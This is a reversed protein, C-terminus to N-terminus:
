KLSKTKDDTLNKVVNRMKVRLEQLAVPKQLKIELSKISNNNWNGNFIKELEAYLKAKSVAKPLALTFDYIKADPKPRFLSLVGISFEVTQNEMNQREANGKLDVNKFRQEVRQFPYKPKRLTM